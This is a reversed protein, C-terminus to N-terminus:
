ATIIRQRFHLYTWTGSFYSWLTRLGLSSFYQTPLLLSRALTTSPYAARASDSDPHPPPPLAITTVKTPPFIASVTGIRSSASDQFLPHMSSQSCQRSLKFWVLFDRLGGYRRELLFKMAQSFHHLSLLVGALLPPAAFGRFARSFSLSGAILIPKFVWFPPSYPFLNFSTPVQARTPSPKQFRSPRTRFFGWLVFLRRVRIQFRLRQQPTEPALRALSPRSPRSIPGLRVSVHLPQDDYQFPLLFRFADPFSREIPAFKL